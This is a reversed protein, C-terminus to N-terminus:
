VRSREYLESRNYHIIGTGKSDFAFPIEKLNKLANRIKQHNQEKVYFLLFGGGGAGLLKGGEAGNKMALDYYYDIDGNSIDGALEKKYNWGAHLIEGMADANGHLLELRLDKALQVMKHLNQIKAEDNQTNKKQEALIDGAARTQGTYFMLLNNELKQYSGTNLFVRDVNVAGGPQFEIFNLGGCACAYQDQKGIPERLLEIEVKCALAAIEEKSMYKESYANCLNILGATFASSSALGTGSPIDASSNFDVGKIGYMKFVERLIPHQIDDINDVNETRSYKLLYGDKFFYPHISLYVYKNISTSIVAGGFKEYYEALDSGGGAFSIRFPTRTIIM